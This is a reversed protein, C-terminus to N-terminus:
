VASVGRKRLYNLFRKQGFVLFRYERGGNLRIDVIPFGFKRGATVGTIDRYNMQLNRYERPVMLKSTRYAMTTEDAVIGGGLIGNKCLSVIFYRMM